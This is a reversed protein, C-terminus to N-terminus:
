EDSVVPTRQLSDSSLIGHELHQGAVLLPQQQPEEEVRVDRRASHGDGKPLLAV